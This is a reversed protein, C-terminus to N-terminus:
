SVFCGTSSVLQPLVVCVPCACHAGKIRFSHSTYMYYRGYLLSQYIVMSLLMESMNFFSIIPENKSSYVACSFCSTYLILSTLYTYHRLLGHEACMYM